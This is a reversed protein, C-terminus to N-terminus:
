SIQVVRAMKVVPSKEQREAFAAAKAHVTYTRAFREGDEYFVTVQWHHHKRRADKFSTPKRSKMGRIYRIYGHPALMAYVQGFPQRRPNAARRRLSSRLLPM